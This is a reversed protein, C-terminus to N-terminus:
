IAPERRATRYWNTEWKFVWETMGKLLYESDAKIAVTSLQGEGLARTRLIETAQELALIGARLEAVQNPVLTEM